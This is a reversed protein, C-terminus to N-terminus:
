WDGIYEFPTDTSDVQEAPEEPEHELTTKKASSFRNMVSDAQRILSQEVVETTVAHEATAKDGSLSVLHPTIVVVTEKNLVAQEQRSFFPGVLPIDSVLPVGTRNETSARTILGGIFVQQGDETLLQTTVETTRKSPIGDQVEGTSVEPHIELLMRNDRDVSGKVNLIVGTELFEISETTVQNITTTVRYGIRDGIIVEAEENELLMLKPTSLTRVRGKRALASLFLELDQTVLDVFFGPGLPSALGRTGATIDRGFISWDIGFTEDTNLTVELIKAEILIQRPEIDIKSLLEEIRDIFEPLDEVVLIRRDELTTIKGYRSLHKTLVDAVVKPDSYQVKISRIQTNGHTSDKGADERDLVIYTHSRREVVYGAADAIHRIAEEVSVDYLNVSIDGSVGKGLLVNVRAQRSLMEYVEEIPTDRFTLTIVHESGPTTDQAVAFALTPIVAALGLLLTSLWLKTYKASM